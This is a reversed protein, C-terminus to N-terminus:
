NTQIGSENSKIGDLKKIDKTDATELIISKLNM